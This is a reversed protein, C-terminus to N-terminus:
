PRIVVSTGVAAWHYLFAIAALPTHICGHSGETRYQASGYPFKQWSSDHFGFLPGDFPIWYKVAFGEGDLLTLTTNTIKPQIQYTGTPTSAYPLAVAGTTVPSNYAVRPGACMWLHQHTISVLVLKAAANAACANPPKPKPRPKPVASTTRPAAAIVDRPVARQHAAASTRPPDTRAGSGRTVAAAGCGTLAVALVAVVAAARRVNAV